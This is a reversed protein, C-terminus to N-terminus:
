SRDERTTKDKRVLLLLVLYGILDTVENEGFAGPSHKVRALKDDIRACISAEADGSAFIGLPNLASDGYARNKAVLLEEIEHCKTSIRETTPKM